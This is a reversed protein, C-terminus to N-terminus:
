AQITAKHQDSFHATAFAAAGLVASRQELRSFSIQVNAYAYSQLRQELIRKIPQELWKELTAYRNGLILQEPNFMNILNVFGIGIYEGVRNFLQIVERNGQEAARKLTTIDSLSTLSPQGEFGQNEVIQLHRAQELLAIESTYLEWCGRNGCSCKKGNAEITFHGMEGSFGAAGRFLKNDIMVGTGVGSGFSIYILHESNKGAGYLKEGYAGSNAENEVIIPVQFDEFLPTRLDINKWGLNPAFLITGEKDVIGPVGVGIGVVGYPSSPAKGILLQIVVKLQELVYEPDAQNLSIDHEYIINGQLDTLVALIDKVGLDIGISFGALHNYFLMVPKRGGSSQGEGIEYVLQEMILEQVLSSVTAKNLGSLKSIDARSLPSKDRLLQLVISKNIKKILLQDGTMLNM